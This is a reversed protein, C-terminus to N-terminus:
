WLSRLREAGQGIWKGAVAENECYYDNAALHKTLYTSGDRIKAMTFMLGKGLRVDDIKRPELSKPTLRM